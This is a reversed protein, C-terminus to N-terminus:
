EFKCHKTLFCPIVTIIFSVIFLSSMMCTTIPAEARVIGTSKESSAHFNLQVSGVKFTIVRSQKDNSSIEKYEIWPIKEPLM